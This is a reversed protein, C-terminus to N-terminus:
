CGRGHLGDGADEEEEHCGNRRRLLNRLVAFQPGGTRVSAGHGHVPQGEHAVAEPDLNGIGRVVVDLRREVASRDAADGRDGDPRECVANAHHWQMDERLQPDPGGQELAVVGRHGEPDNVVLDLLAPPRAYRAPFNGVGIYPDDKRLRERALQYGFRPVKESTAV